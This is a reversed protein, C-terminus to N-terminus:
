NFLKAPFNLCIKKKTNNKKLINDVKLFKQLSIASYDFTKINHYQNKLIKNTSKFYSVNKIGESDYFIEEKTTLLIIFPKIINESNKNDKKFFIKLNNIDNKTLKNILKKANTENPIPINYNKYFQFKKQLFFDLNEKNEEILNNKENHLYHLKIFIHTKWCFNSKKNVLILISYVKLICIFYFKLM